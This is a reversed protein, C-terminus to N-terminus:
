LVGKERADEVAEVKWAEFVEVDFSECDADVGADAVRLVAVAAAESLLEAVDVGGADGEGSDQRQAMKCLEVFNRTVVKQNNAHWAM